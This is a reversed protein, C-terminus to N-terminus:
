TSIYIEQMIQREASQAKRTIDKDDNREREREYILNPVIYKTFLEYFNVQIYMIHELVHNEKVM